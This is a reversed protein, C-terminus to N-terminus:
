DASNTGKQRATTPTKKWGYPKQWVDTHCIIDRRTQERKGRRRRVDRECTICGHTPRLAIEHLLSMAGIRQNSGIALDKHCKVFWCKTGKQRATNQFGGVGM